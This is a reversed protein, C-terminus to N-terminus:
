SDRDGTPVEVPGDSDSKKSWPWKVPGTTVLRLLVIGLSVYGLLEAKSEPLFQRILYLDLYESAAVLAIAAAFLLTKIGNLFGLTARWARGIV